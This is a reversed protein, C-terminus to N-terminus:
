RKYVTISEPPVVDSVFAQFPMGEWKDISLVKEEASFEWLYYGEGEGKNDQYYAAESSNKYSYRVGEYDIHNDISHEDDMRILDDETVGVQNLGVPKAGANATVFLGGGGSWQVWLQKDGDVGLIEFWEGSASEYRNMKEVILYSDEYELSLGTVTFVDGIRAEKVSDGLSGADPAPSRKKRKGFLSGFVM